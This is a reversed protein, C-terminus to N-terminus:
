LGSGLATAAGALIAAMFKRYLILLLFLLPFLTPLLPIVTGMVSGVAGTTSAIAIATAADYNAIVILRTATALLVVIPSAILAKTTSSVAFSLSRPQRPVQVIPPPVVPGNPPIPANEEPKKREM